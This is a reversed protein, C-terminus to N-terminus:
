KKEMSGPSSRVRTYVTKGLWGLLGIAIVLLEVQSLAFKAVTFMNAAQAVIDLRRPYSLLLTVVGANELYDVIMVIPGLLPLKQWFSEPSFVRRFLYITLTSFMLASLLPYILDLTLEIWVYYQRGEEGYSDIFQYAREPSYSSQLDLTEFSPYIAPLVFANVAIVLLIFVIVLKGTALKTLADLLKDAM